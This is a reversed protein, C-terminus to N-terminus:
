RQSRAIRSFVMLDSWCCMRLEVVVWVVLSSGPGSWLLRCQCARDRCVANGLLVMDFWACATLSLTREEKYGCALLLRQCAPSLDSLHRAVDLRVGVLRGSLASDLSAHTGKGVRTAGLASGSSSQASCDKYSWAVESAPLVSAYALSFAPTAPAWASDAALSACAVASACACCCVPWM